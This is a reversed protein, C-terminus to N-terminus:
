RPQTELAATEVRASSLARFDAAYSRLRAVAARRQEPSLGREMDQLADSLANQWRQMSQRNAEARGADPDALFRSLEAELHPSDRGERVMRVLVQQRRQREELRVRPMEPFAEVLRQVQARQAASLPGVFDELQDALWGARRANLTARDGAVQKREFKRIDESFRQEMQRVQADSLTTLVPALGEGAQGGLVRARQRVERMMWEVDGPRLGRELRQAADDFVAAYRPLEQARHWAHLEDLGARFAQAQGADLDVFRGAMRALLWDAHDYSLRVTSCSSLLLLAAALALLVSRLM